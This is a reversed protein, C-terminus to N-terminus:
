LKIKVGVFFSRSHPLLGTDIGQGIVSNTVATEPDTGLYRTLTFLNNGQIWFELGQLFAAQVPMRYSLTVNSLKLYSGDEIWRDSFRSNGMPDQFVARPIDTSHGEGHWRRTMAMTQNIFRNGGELQSRMYNYIYGGLSYNFGVDLRLNKYALSTFINGYIDPNPDGIITQDAENILHNGDRDTFHIDGARFPTLTGNAEQQNLAADAAEESTAFVGQTRYGYFVGAAAGVQTRVTAGYLPTDFYKQGAPLATVENKYRGVSAGIEWQWNRTTLIRSSLSVDIGRNIMAGGNGWCEELGILYSLKQITLLNDTKSKFVNVQLNLRGSLFRSTLSANMRRTREWQIRPNGIGAFSLGLVNDLYKQSAFYSRSAHNDIDDNGTVDFGVSLRLYDVSKIGALWPESTLEWGVQVGPFIGWRTDFVDLGDAENGFRSSTEATLNLQLYYRGLLNYAAQAYWAINTWNETGGTTQANALGSHIFPTKDNGTNYGLQSTVSYNEWNLRAGAFINFNHAGMRKIWQLRTDSMVSNQRAALSRVENERTAALHEVYYDPMGSVPLYYKENTSVLNYSFHESLTLGKMIRYEPTIAVNLMSNEFRNKNEADGYLNLAYPNALKYNYGTYSHLAEDLYSEDTVDLHNEHIQGGAYVYPSLFPSKAYGLFSPATPSGSTYSQPAGDDRLNRNQNTFSADFRTSLRDSFKVDTNFRINLRNMTNYELTSQADTYGLSLNYGAVDDGGEVNIGYNQTFATRYLEKKWDTNNHYQGYYYYTPDENLFKFDTVKTRTTKLLESAYSRYQEAGMMDIYRPETAVGASLTATIRTAMSKNRRTKVLIVGNSGKSGYLSTGNRLVSVSEIDAPNINSLISNYFGQHLTERDYQQEIIVGDIVVLPQANANLSNLGGIFMTSGIGPTGSRGVTRVQAGLQRGIEEEITVAPSYAFDKVSYPTTIDTEQEYDSRSTVSPYLRVDMMCGDAVIGRRALHYGPASMNLASVYQPVDIKYSGDEGTLTSYGEVQAASVMAGALPLGTSASMVRGKVTKTLTRQEGTVTNETIEQAQAVPIGLALSSFILTYFVQKM